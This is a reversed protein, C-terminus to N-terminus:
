DVGPTIDTFEEEYFVIKTKGQRILEEAQEQSDAEVETAGYQVFSVWFRYKAM